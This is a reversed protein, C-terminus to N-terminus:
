EFIAALRALVDDMVEPPVRDRTRRAGRARLDLARPQDCRVVGQTALGLGSLSVAFGRLRAFDGGITIPVVLPLGTLRNFAATSVVLVRREGRQEHGVVPDLTVVYIDGRDM